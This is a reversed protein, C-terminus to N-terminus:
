LNAKNRYHTSATQLFAKMHLIMSDTAPLTFRGILNNKKETDKKYAYCYLAKGEIANFGLVYEDNIAQYVANNIKNYVIRHPKLLTDTLNIGYSIFSDQFNSFHLVTNLVDLQSVTSSITMKKEKDPEYIFVPIRFSAVEDVKINKSDPQAWHDACFIFVTNNYWEQKAANAFFHQLCDNYYQMSRMPETTNPNSNKDVYSKPIDFPYHTSINYQVAFFPQQLTGIKQLMFNLVYEDHLGMSHKEMQQNGPIDQMCYYHQIGLWKCCQAFGFDDYNDGIFFSSTYNNKALAKGIATRSISTYNSHFLPIDTITPIGALIATIGKNSNYSFSFANNFYTSKNVLSDLFPMTVKYRSSSDFFDFPVSEMIFLVINKKTSSASSDKKHITFLSEQQAPSMYNQTPLATEDKRYLSYIFTHFSNQAVPLQVAELATLPYTPVIKKTGSLYFLSLFVILLINTPLFRTVLKESQIMKLIGTYIFWAICFSFVIIALIILLVNLTGSVFPNRLVYLLDADARQLHFRYYFIDVTNLLLLFTNIFTFITIISVKIFRSRLLKGAVLFFIFLPLNVLAICVLDYILSWKILLLINAIGQVSWGSSIRYNYFFFVCKLCCLLILLKVLFLLATKEKGISTKLSFM